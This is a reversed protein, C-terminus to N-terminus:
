EAFPIVKWANGDPVLQRNCGTPIDAVGTGYARVVREGRERLMTIMAELEDAQRRADDSFESIAPALICQDDIETERNLNIVQRLDLSFGTAPRSRGYAAGVADYRGGRAVERGHHDIFASFVVGTHYHYGRLESLDFYVDTRPQRLVLAEAVIRLNDSAEIIEAGAGALSELANELENIPGRLEPLSVILRAVLDSLDANSVINELDPISKRQLADFLDAEMTHGLGAYQVLARFIGVHGIDLHAGEFGCQNICRLMLEVIEVDAEASEAGYLEAGVQFQERSEFVQRTRARLVPGAYCLRTPSEAGLVHADIRAIQPTMDARIGLQRGSLHDVLKFTEIELDEGGGCLLSDLHELLPPSVLDYGHVHCVDILARRLREMRMADVPMMEEIGAPLLWLNRM